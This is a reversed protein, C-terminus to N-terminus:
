FMFCTAYPSRRPEECCDTERRTRKCSPGDVRLLSTRAAREAFSPLVGHHRPVETLRAVALCGVRAGQYRAQQRPSPRDAVLNKIDADIINGDLILRQLMRNTDLAAALARADVPSRKGFLSLSKLTALVM